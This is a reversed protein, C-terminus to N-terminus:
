GQKYGAESCTESNSKKGKVVSVTSKLNTIAQTTVRVTVLINTKVGSNLTITVWTSGNKNKATLKFTGNKNVNFVTVLGTDKPTVSKLYDGNAFDSVRIAATSQGNKLTVQDTNVSMNYTRTEGWDQFGCRECKFHQQYDATFFIPTPNGKSVTHKGSGHNVWQEDTFKHGLEPILVDSDQQMEEKGDKDLFHKGCSTCRYTDKMGPNLCEAPYGRYLELIHGKALYVVDELENDGYPNEYNKGCAECHWYSRNGNETCTAAKENIWIFKHAAKEIKVDDFVETGAKNGFYM